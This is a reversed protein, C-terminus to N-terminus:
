TRGKLDRSMVLKKKRVDSLKQGGHLWQLATFGASRTIMPTRDDNPGFSSGYGQDTGSRTATIARQKTGIFRARGCIVLRAADQQRLHNHRRCDPQIGYQELKAVEPANLDCIRLPKRWPCVEGQSRHASSGTLAPDRNTV